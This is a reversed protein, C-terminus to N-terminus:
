VEWGHMKRLNERERREEREGREWRFVLVFSSDFFNCANFSFRFPVFRFSSLFSLRSSLDHTLALHPLFSSALCLTLFALLFPITVLPPLSYLIEIFTYNFPHSLSAISLPCTTVFFSFSFFALSFSLSLSLRHLTTPPLKIKIEGFVVGVVVERV